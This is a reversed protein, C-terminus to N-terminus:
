LNHDTYHPFGTDKLSIIGTRLAQSVAQGSNSVGLKHLIEHVHKEVTRPSIVLSTAIAKYTSGWALLVLVERERNTLETPKTTKRHSM